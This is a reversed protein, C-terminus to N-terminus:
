SRATRPEFARVAAALRHATSARRGATDTVPAMTVTEIVAGTGMHGTLGLVPGTGYTYRYPSSYGSLSGRRQGGGDHGSQRRGPEHERDGRRAPPVPSMRLNPRPAIVGPQRAPAVPRPITRVHSLRTAVRSPTASTARRITQRWGARYANSHAPTAARPMRPPQYAQRPASIRPARAGHGGPHGSGAARSTTEIGALLGLALTGLMPWRIGSVRTNLPIAGMPAIRAGAKGVLHYRGVVSDLWRSARFDRPNRGAGFGGSSTPVRSRSSPM